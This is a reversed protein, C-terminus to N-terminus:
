WADSRSRARVECAGPASEMIRAQEDMTVQRLVTLPWSVIEALVRDLDCRQRLAAVVGADQELVRWLERKGARAIDVDPASQRLMYLQAILAAGQENTALTSCDTQYQELAACISLAARAVLKGAELEAASAPAESPSEDLHLAHSSPM